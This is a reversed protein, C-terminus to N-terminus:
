DLHSRPVFKIGCSLTKSTPSLINYLFKTFGPLPVWDQKGRSWFVFLLLPDSGTSAFSSLVKRIFRQLLFFLLSLFVQYLFTHAYTHTNMNTLQCCLNCCVPLFRLWGRLEVPDSLPAYIIASAVYPPEKGSLQQKISSRQEAMRGSLNVERERGWMKGVHSQKRKKKKM